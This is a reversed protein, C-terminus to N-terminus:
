LMATMQTPTGSRHKDTGYSMLGGGAVFARNWTAPLSARAATGVIAARNSITFSDPLVLIGTNKEQSLTNIADAIAAESRVPTAGATVAL